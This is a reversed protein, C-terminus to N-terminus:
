QLRRHEPVILSIEYQPSLFAPMLRFSITNLWM